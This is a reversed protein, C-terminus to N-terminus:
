DKQDQDAWYLNINRLLWTSVFPGPSQDKMNNVLCKEESRTLVKNIHRLKDSIVSIVQLVQKLTSKRDSYSLGSYQFCAM